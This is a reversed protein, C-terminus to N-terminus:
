FPASNENPALTLAKLADLSSLVDDRSIETWNTAKHTIISLKFAEFADALDDPLDTLNEFPRVFSVTAQDDGDFGPRASRPVDEEDGFDPGAPSRPEQNGTVDSGFSKPSSEEVDHDEDVEATIIDEDHPKEDEPAGLTEWRQRRTQSVSWKNQVAGELWMEADDWDLAAFFHSWYLGEFQPHIDGFREYVRRLRGSHQGTVSGVRRSWAEDSYETAPAGKSILANRWQHVICGKEWNTTSVLRNWRGVYTSSESEVSEVVEQSKGM